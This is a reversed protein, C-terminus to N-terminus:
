GMVEEEHCKQCIEEWEGDIFRCVLSYVEATCRDCIYVKLGNLYLKM